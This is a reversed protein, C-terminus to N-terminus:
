CYIHNIFFAVFYFGSPFWVIYEFMYQFHVRYKNESKPKLSFTKMDFVFMDFTINRYTILRYNIKGMKDIYVRVVEAVKLEDSLM